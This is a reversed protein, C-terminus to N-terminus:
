FGNVLRDYVIAIWRYEKTYWFDEEISELYQEVVEATIGAETYETANHSSLWEINYNVSEDGTTVIIEGATIEGDAAPSLMMLETFNSVKQKIAKLAENSYDLGLLTKSCDDIQKFTIGAERWDYINHEYLWGLTYTEGDAEIALSEDTFEPFDAEPMDEPDCFRNVEIPPEVKPEETVPAETAIPETGTIEEQVAADDSCAVLSLILAGALVAM